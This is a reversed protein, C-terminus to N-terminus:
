AELFLAPQEIDPISPRARAVREAAIECYREEADVGIARRGNMKAAVLTTGSGAFPDLVVAGRAAVTTVLAELLGIPKETEHVGDRIMPFRLVNPMDRRQPERGVGKTFHLILEHQNRFCSGMGFNVKDWVLMSAHRLDASELSGGLAPMMRWDIFSLIHAGDPLIRNWELACSRMLWLFGNTTMSDNKFWKEADGERTMSKRVGKAGERRTGSSYPPDTVVCDAAGEDLADCVILADGHYITAWEDQFYPKM